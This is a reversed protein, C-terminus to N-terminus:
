RDLDLVVRGAQGEERIVQVPTDTNNYFPTSVICSEDWSEIEVHIRSEDSAYMWNEILVSRRHDPVHVNSLRIGNCEDLIVQENIKVAAKFDLPRLNTQLTWHLRPLFKTSGGCVPDQRRSGNDSNSKDNCGVLTSTLLLAGIISKM